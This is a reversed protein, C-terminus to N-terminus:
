LVPQPLHEGRGAHSPQLAQALEVAEEIQNLLFPGDFSVKREVLERTRSPNGTVMLVPADHVHSVREAAALASGTELNDGVVVLDPPHRDAAAVAQEESWTRDFSTFGLTELRQQIARSVIMNDDIILAHPM